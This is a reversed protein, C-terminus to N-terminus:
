KVGPQWTPLGLMARLQQRARDEASTKGVAESLPVEAPRVGRPPQPLNAGGPRGFLGMLMRGFWGPKTAAELAEQGYIGRMASVLEDPHRRAFGPMSEQLTLLAKVPDPEIPKGGRLGIYKTAKIGEEGFKRQLTEEPGLSPEERPPEAGPLPPPVGGPRGGAGRPGPVTRYASTLEQRIRNIEAESLPQGEAIRKGIAADMARRISAAASTEEGKAERQFEIAKEAIKEKSGLKAMELPIVAAAQNAARLRLWEDWAQAEQAREYRELAGPRYEGEALGGYRYGGRANFYDEFEKRLASPTQPEYGAPLGPRAAAPAVNPQAQLFQFMSLDRMDQPTLPPVTTAEGAPPATAAAAAPPATPPVAPQGAASPRIPPVPPAQETGRRVGSPRAGLVPGEGIIRAALSAPNMPPRSVEGAVPAPLPVRVPEGSRNLYGEKGVPSYGYLPSQTADAGAGFPEAQSVGPVTGAPILPLPVTDGRTAYEGGLRMTEAQDAPTVPLRRTFAAPQGPRIPLTFTDGGTPLPPGAEAPALVEGLQTGRLTRIRAPALARQRRDEENLMDDFTFTAM